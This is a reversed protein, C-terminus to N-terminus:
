WRSASSGDTSAAWGPTASRTPSSITTPIRGSDKASTATSGPAGASRTISTVTSRTSDSPASSITCAATM